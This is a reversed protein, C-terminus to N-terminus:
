AVPVPAPGRRNVLAIGIAICVMAIVLRTGITEGLATAAFLLGFVPTLFPFASLRTAPYHRLLWFWTLYSVFAVIVSQFLLSAWAWWPLGDVPWREHTAIAAAGLVVASIALQFLLTKEPAAGALRTTRIVLTTAGWLVAAVLSLADGIWRTRVPSTFGEHFAYALAAFAGALGVIQMASLRESPVFRPLVLAVVFPAM